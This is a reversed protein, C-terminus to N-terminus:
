YARQKNAVPNISSVHGAKKKSVSSIRHRPKAAGREHVPRAPATVEFCCLSKCLVKRCGRALKRRTAERIQSVSRASRRQVPGCSTRSVVKRAADLRRM